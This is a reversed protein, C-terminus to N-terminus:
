KKDKLLEILDDIRNYVLGMGRGCVYSQQACINGENNNLIMPLGAAALTNIRAPINVLANNEIHYAYLTLTNTIMRLMEEKDYCIQEVMGYQETM